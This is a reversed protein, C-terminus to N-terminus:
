FRCLRTPEQLPLTIKSTALRPRSLTSCRPRSNSSPLRWGDRTFPPRPATGSGPHAIASPLITLTAILNYNLCPCKSPEEKAWSRIALDERQFLPFFIQTFVWDDWKWFIKALLSKELSQCKFPNSWYFDFVSHAANALFFAFICSKWHRNQIAGMDRLEFITKVFPM